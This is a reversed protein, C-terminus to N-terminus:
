APPMQIKMQTLYSVNTTTTNIFADNPGNSAAAGMSCKYKGHRSDTPVYEM